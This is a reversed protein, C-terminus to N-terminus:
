LLVAVAGDSTPPCQRPVSMDTGIAAILEHATRQGVGPITQLREIVECQEGLRREIEAEMAQVQQTLTDILTLQHELLFRQHDGMCGETARAIEERAARVTRHVLGALVQGDEEGAILHELVARGSVGLVNSVVSGLKINAGELVKQVRNSEASRMEVLSRRYRVLAALERQHRDPIFSATLLGHRLLDAIWEADKVDTKRGPVQKIHQANVVMAPIGDAELLNYLPKWSSGTSEMAVMQCDQKRVWAIMALLDATMTGFRRVEKGSPGVLCAVVTKKHVDMGCCCAYGFEM